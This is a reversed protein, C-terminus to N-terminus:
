SGETLIRALDTRAESLLRRVTGEPTRLQRAILAVPLDAFYYLLVVDRRRRPLREVLDRIDSDPPAVDDPRAYALALAASEWDRRRGMRRLYNTAVIYLYARPERVEVWRGFLRVFAEQAVDRATQEDGCLRFCYRVLAAYEAECFARQAERRDPALATAETTV